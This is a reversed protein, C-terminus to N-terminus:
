PTCSSTTVRPATATTPGDVTRPLADAAGSFRWEVTTSTGPRVSVTVRVLRWGGESDVAAAVPRGDVTVQDLGVWPAVWLSVTEVATRRDAARPAAANSVYAPVDAPVSNALSLSMSSTTTGTGACPPAVTFTPAVWYDLKSPVVGTLGVRAVGDRPPGLVGAVGAAVLASQEQPRSSWVALHGSDVAERAGDLAATSLGDSLVAEFAAASTVALFAKRADQDTGFRVYADYMLTRALDATAVDGFPGLQLPPHASGLLQGLGVPDVFVVVDPTPLGAVTVLSSTLVGAEAASGGMTVNQVRAADQGYLGLFEQGVLSVDARAAYLDNDTGTRTLAIRGGEVSLYAYAGVIGQVPRVEAPNTFAVLYTRPGDAGLLAPLQPLVQSATQLPGSAQDLQATVPDLRTSIASLVEPGEGDHLATRAAEIRTQYDLVIPTLEQVGAVNVTRDASVLGQGLVEDVVGLAQPLPETLLAAAHAGGGVAKLQAGVWPLHTALRYPLQSTARDAAASDDALRAAGERAGAYDKARVQGELRPAEAAVRQLARGAQVGAVAVAAAWALLLLLLLSLLIRLVPPRGGTRRRGRRRAPELAPQEATGSM